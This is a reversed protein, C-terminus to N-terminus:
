QGMQNLRYFTYGPLADTIRTGIPTPDQEVVDLLSRVLSLGEPDGQAMNYDTELQARLRSLRKQNTM